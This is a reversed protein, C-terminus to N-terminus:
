EGDCVEMGLFQRIKKATLQMIKETREVKGSLIYEARVLLERTMLLEMQDFEKKTAM